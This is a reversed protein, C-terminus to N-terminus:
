IVSMKRFAKFFASLSGTVWIENNEIMQLVEQPSKLLVEISENEDLHQTTTKQVNTALYAHITEIVKTPNHTLKGLYEFSESTYGTEEELERKAADLHAEGDNVFGAPAETFIDDGAHKYQKVLVVKNDPTLAIVVIVDSSKYMYYDDLITGNPLQVTDRQVKMWKNDFALESSLTKWFKSPPM